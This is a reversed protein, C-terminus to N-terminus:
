AKQLAQLHEALRIAFSVIIMTPVRHGGTPFIASGAVYLNDLGHVKLNTDVVGDQPRASMRATGIHHNLGKALRRIGEPTLPPAIARGMDLRTLEQILIRQGVAFTKFDLDTFSWNLIAKRCGLADRETSLTIRSDPNPAQEIRHDLDFVPAVKPPGQWRSQLYRFTSPIDGVIRGLANLAKIDAPKWFADYMLHHAADQAREFKVAPLFRCYYDLIGERKSTGLSLGLNINHMVEHANGGNYISLFRSNPIFRGSILKPHEMFYRGVHGHQNGIGTPMVDNSDLLLRANEVAHAALVFRKARVTFPTQGLARVTLSDVHTGAPNLHIRTVNAHLMVRLHKLQAFHDKWIKGQRARTTLQYVQTALDTSRRDPLESPDIGAARAQFEASFGAMQFGLDAAARSIYPDLERAGIPWPPIGLDPRGAYLLPSPIQCFGAWHNTSGGFYRLRCAAMDFYDIGRKEMKYLSQTQGEMEMGGSELLLVDMQFSALYRALTIGAAGAGVICIDAQLGTASDRQRADLFNSM